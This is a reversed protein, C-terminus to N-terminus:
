KRHGLLVVGQVTQQNDDCCVKAVGCDCAPKTRKCDCSLKELEDLTRLLFSIRYELKDVHTKVDGYDAASSSHAAAIHDSTSAQAHRIEDVVQQLVQMQTQLGQVADTVDIPDNDHNNDSM